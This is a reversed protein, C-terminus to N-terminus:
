DEPEPFLDNAHARLVDWNIGVEANHYKKTRRLVESAQEDTLDPRVEQVDELGWIVSISYTTDM